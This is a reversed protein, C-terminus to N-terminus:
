RVPRQQAAAPSSCRQPPAALPACSLAGVAPAPQTEMQLYSAHKVNVTADTAGSSGALTCGACLRGGLFRIALGADTGALAMFECANPQGFVPAGAATVIQWWFCDLQFADSPAAEWDPQAADPKIRRSFTIPLVVGFLDVAAPGSNTLSPRLRLERSYM